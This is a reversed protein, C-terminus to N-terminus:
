WAIHGSVNGRDDSYSEIGHVIIVDRGGRGDVMDGVVDGEVSGKVNIIDAKGDVNSNDNSVGDGYINAIVKGGKEVTITDRGGDGHDGTM